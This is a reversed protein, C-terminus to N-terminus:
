NAIHKLSRPYEELLPLLAAQTKASRDMGPLLWLLIAWDIAAALGGEMLGASVSVFRHLEVAAKGSLPSVLAYLPQLVLDIEEDTACAKNLLQALSAASVPAASEDATAEAVFGMRPLPLIPWPEAEYAATRTLTVSDRAVMVRSVGPMLAAGGLSTM